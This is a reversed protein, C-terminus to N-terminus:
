PERYNCRGDQWAGCEEKHCDLMKYMTKTVTKVIGREDDTETETVTVDVKTNYPCIM